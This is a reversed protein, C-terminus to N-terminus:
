VIPEHNFADWVNYAWLIIGSVLSLGLTLLFLYGNILLSVYIAIPFFFYFTLMLKLGRAGEGKIIQGLGVILCSALAEPWHKDKM